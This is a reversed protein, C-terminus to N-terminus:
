RLRRWVLVASVVVLGAVAALVVPRPRGDATMQAKANRVRDQAHAKVDLKDQLADVTEALRERNHEVERERAAVAPDVDNGTNTRPDAM